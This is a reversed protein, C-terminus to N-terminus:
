KLDGRYVNYYRNNILNAKLRNILGKEVAYDTAAEITAFWRSTMEGYRVNFYKYVGPTKPALFMVAYTENVPEASVLYFADFDIGGKLYKELKRDIHM